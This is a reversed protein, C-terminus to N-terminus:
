VLCFHFDWDRVVLCCFFFFFCRGFGLRSSWFLYFIFFLFSSSLLLVTGEGIEGERCGSEGEGGEAEAEGIEGEGNEAFLFGWCDSSSIFLSFFLDLFGYGFLFHFVQIYVNEAAREEESLIKGKGDSFYRPTRRSGEMLRCLSIRTLSSRMAMLKHAKNRQPFCFFFIIVVKTKDCPAIWCPPIKLNWLAFSFLPKTFGLRLKSTKLDTSPTKPHHCNGHINYRIVSIGDPQSLTPHGEDM